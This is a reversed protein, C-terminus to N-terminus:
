GPPVYLNLFVPVSLSFLDTLAHSFILWRLSRTKFYIIGFCVGSIFVTTLFIPNRCAISTTGLGVLHNLMFFLSSYIIAVWTPWKSTIDLILGRWYGEELFPNTLGLLLWPLWILVGKLLYSQTLIMRLSPLALAVAFVAWGWHSRSPQLWRRISARGGGWLIFFSIIIWYIIVIPVWAWVDWVSKFIHATFFSLICVLLPSLVILTNKFGGGDSNSKM